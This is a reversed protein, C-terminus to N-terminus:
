EAGGAAAIAKGLSDEQPIGNWRHVVKGQGDFVLVSIENSEPSLGLQTVAKGDFDAIVHMDTRPDRTLHKADYQPKVEKAEGDLRKRIVSRTIGQLPGWLKRQFNVLTVYLYRADGVYRDPVQDAVARAQEGNSQTVVTIITVHGDATSLENGDVDQFTLTAVSGTKLEASQSVSTASCFLVACFLQLSRAIM